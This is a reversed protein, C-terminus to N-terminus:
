VANRASVFLAKEEDKGERRTENVKSRIERFRKVGNRSERYIWSCTRIDYSRNQGTYSTDNLVVFYDKKTARM